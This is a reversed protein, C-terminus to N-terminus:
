PISASAAETNSDPAAENGAAAPAAEWLKV